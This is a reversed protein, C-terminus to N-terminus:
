CQQLAQQQQLGQDSGVDQQGDHSVQQQQSTTDPLVAATQSWAVAPPAAHQPQCTSLPPAAAALSRAERTLCAFGALIAACILSETQKLM